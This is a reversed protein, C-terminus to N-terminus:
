SHLSAAPTESGNAPPSRDATRAGRPQKWTRCGRRSDSRGGSRGTPEGNENSGAAGHVMEIAVVRTSNASTGAETSAFLRRAPIMADLLPLGITAGMGRLATRRSIHKGSIFQM